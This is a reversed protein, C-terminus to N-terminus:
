HQQAAEEAIEEYQEDFDNENMLRYDNEGCRIIVQNEMVTENGTGQPNLKILTQEDVNFNDTFNDGKEEVWNRIEDLNVNEGVTFYACAVEKLRANGIKKEM